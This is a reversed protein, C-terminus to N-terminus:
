SKSQKHKKKFGGGGYCPRNRYGGDDCAIAQATRTNSQISSPDKGSVALSASAPAAIAFTGLGALMAICVFAAKM